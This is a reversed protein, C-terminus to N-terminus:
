ARPECIVVPIPRETWSQYDDFDSYHEVLRPWLRARQEADAVRARMPCVDGRVQVVVDPDAEINRYWQPNTPMGGQSAVVVVADGDALYLLPTTRPRGSKRGRVTLLCVPVGRPFASGIRWRGGIRGGTRRYTWVHARSAVRM